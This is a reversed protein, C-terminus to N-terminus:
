QEAKTKGNELGDANEQLNPLYIGGDACVWVSRECSFSLCGRPGAAAFKTVTFTLTACLHEGVGRTDLFFLRLATKLNTENIRM